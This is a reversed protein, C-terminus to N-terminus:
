GIIHGSIFDATVSSYCAERIEILDSCFLSTLEVTLVEDCAICVPPEENKLLFSRTVYSLGIHFVCIM